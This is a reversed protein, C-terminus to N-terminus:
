SALASGSARGAREVFGRVSELAGTALNVPGSAPTRVLGLRLMGEAVDEVYTFDRRQDGGTLAVPKGGPRGAPSVAPAGRVSARAMSPSSAPPSARPM